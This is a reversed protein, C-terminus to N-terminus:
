QETLSELQESERSVDMLTIKSSQSLSLKISMKLESELENKIYLKLNNFKKLVENKAKNFMDQKKENVTTILLEQMKKWSGPGTIAAAKEYCSAMENEITKQISSYIHKKTEVVERNLSAKLKTEETKIFKQIHNLTPSRFSASDSQIVSFKDIEEQVSKGTQGSVPFIQKFDEELCEHLNEALAKNLDLLENKSKSFYRGGYRCLARLTQHLVNQIVAKTSAVCLEVSKEVGKSLCQELVSYITNFRSDLENLAKMLSEEFEMSVKDKMKVMEKDTDPQVSQILSLVGKAENVYDRTLERTIDENLIRLDDQLKPIETESHDLNFKPDFFAKSSVTFVQFDNDTRFIKKIHSQEFKEKVRKKAHENRHLICVKEKDGTLQDTSLRASRVYATLNIEDTKTCIFNIRRCEGEPGLETTCHKLIGWPEKDTIARNIDSVIWVISCERLTSKWKDDRIKSCDGTGPIDVLVVHKLLEHCGPIKITVSKVLPWYWDGPSSESPQIYSAVVNSFKSVDSKSIKKSFSLFTEIEAFKVEKKLEELTKKEADDGFLATIKEVANDFLEHTEDEDSLVTFLDKLEKEWEEKSFLEFEAIYNSDELNAEVRTVVATCAGFCGSPLLDKEGLVANLLSSKGEGSKGFIGFTAKKRSVKDMQNIKSIIDRIMSAEYSNDTARSITNKVNEMIKMVTTLPSEISLDSPEHDRKRKTGQSAM